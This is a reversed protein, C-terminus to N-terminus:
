GIIDIISKQTEDATKFAALNAKLYHRATIQNAAEETYDVNSAETVVGSYNLYKPAPSTDKSLTVVVGGEEQELLNVSQKKFGDTNLNATNHASVEMTRMAAKIGSFSSSFPSIM